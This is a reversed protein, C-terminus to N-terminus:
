AARSRSPRRREYALARFANRLQGMLVAAPIGRGSVDGVTLHLIGDPRRVADYWDGGVELGVGGAMYRGALELGEVSPLEEPPPSCKLSTAVDHEQEHRRPRTLARAAM